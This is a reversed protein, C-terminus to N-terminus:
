QKQKYLLVWEKLEGKTAQFDVLTPWTSSYYPRLSTLFTLRVQPHQHNQHSPKSRHGSTRRVQPTPFHIGGRGGGGQCRRGWGNPSWLHGRWCCRWGGDRRRRRGGDSRQQKGPVSVVKTWVFHWSVPMTVHGFKKSRPWTMQGRGFLSRWDQGKWLM